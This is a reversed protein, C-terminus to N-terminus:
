HHHLNSKRRHFRISIQPAPVHSPISRQHFIHTSAPISALYVYQRSHCASTTHFFTPPASLENDVIRDRIQHESQSKLPCHWSEAFATFLPLIETSRLVLCSKTVHISVVEHPSGQQDSPIGVCVEIIYDSCSPSLMARRRVIM